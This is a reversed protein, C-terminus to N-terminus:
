NILLIVNWVSMFFDKVNEWMRRFFTMPRVDAYKILGHSLYRVMSKLSSIDDAKRMNSIYEFSKSTSIGKREVIEDSSITALLIHKGNVNENIVTGLTQSNDDDIIDLRMMPISDFVVDEPYAFAGIVIGDFKGLEELNIDITENPTGKTQAKAKDDGNHCIGKVKPNGFYVLTKKGDQLLYVYSDVDAGRTWSLKLRVNIQGGLHAILKSPNNM